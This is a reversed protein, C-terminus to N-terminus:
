IEIWQTSTAKAVDSESLTECCNESTEWFDPRRILGLVKGVV